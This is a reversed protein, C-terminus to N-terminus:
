QVHRLPLRPRWETWDCSRMLSIVHWDCMLSSSQPDSSPNRGCFYRTERVVCFLTSFFFCNKYLLFPCPDNSASWGSQQNCSDVKLSGILFKFSTWMWVKVCSCRLRTDNFSCVSATSSMWGQVSSSGQSMLTLPTLPELWVSGWPM